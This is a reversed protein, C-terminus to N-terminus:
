HGMLSSSDNITIEDQDIVLRHKIMKLDLWEDVKDLAKRPSIEKTLATHPSAFAAALLLFLM